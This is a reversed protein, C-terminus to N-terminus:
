ASLELLVVEHLKVEPVLVTMPYTSLDLVRSQLPLRARKIKFDNFQIRVNYIPNVEELYFHTTIDENRTGFPLTPMPNNLLHVMLEKSSRLAATVEIAKPAEVDLPPKTRRVLHAIFRKLPPYPNHIFGEGVDGNIYIVKGKGFRNLTVAAESSDYNVRHDFNDLPREGTLSSRTCLVEAKSDRKLSVLSEEGAFSIVYGFERSIALEQPVYLIARITGKAVASRYNVGFVDALLFNDRKQGLENLLSTEHTAILTGGQAVFSRIENGQKESLCASNSLFLVRYVSLKERKLQEDFVIDVLLHSQNLMEFAGKTVRLGYQAIPSSYFDRTQQSHHLAVYKVTEGDMYDARKNVERFIAKMLNKRLLMPGDFMGYFAAGGNALVALGHLTPSLPEAEPASSAIVEPLTQVAHRWIAFPSGHARAVKAAFSSGDEVSNTEAFFYAGVKELGLPNVPHGLSWDAKHRGYYNFDLVADPYKAKVQRTIHTMMGKMKEYRWNVFHKFDLSSFDVKTPITLGTEERFLKECVHCCCSPTFPWDEHSGWNMDDFYFGDLDLNDLFEILYQALWERYPSNFCFWGLNEPESRGDDLFKMLWEPHIKKLPKTYNMPYYALVLIGKEHALKLFLPLRDRDVNPPPPIMKSRFRPTGRDIEGAVIQVELGAEHILGVYEEVSLGTYSDEPMLCSPYNEVRCVRKEYPKTKLRQAISGVRKVESASTAESGLFGGLLPGAAIAKVFSRRTIDEKKM